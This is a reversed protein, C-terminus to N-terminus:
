LTYFKKLYDYYEPKNAVYFDGDKKIYGNQLLDPIDFKTVEGFFDGNPLSITVFREKIEM